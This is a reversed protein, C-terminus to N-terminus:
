IILIVIALGALMSCSFLMKGRTALEKGVNKNQEALRECVRELLRREGEVDSGGLADLMLVTDTEEQTLGYHASWKQASKRWAACFGQSIDAATERLMPACVGDTGYKELLEAVPPARFSIESNIKGCLIM